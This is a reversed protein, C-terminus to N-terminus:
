QMAPTSVAIQEEVSRNNRALAAKVLGLFLPHPNNPRSGFEPHFQTAIFYPHQPMEIIEVLRGDPSTGSIEYDTELLLSRYANNFEYRHRHREYIVEDKYLSYALTDPKLRCPYTGLRMTGGRDIVDQQEPLINIVPNDTGPDFEASNADKLGAVNRAWEIACCQMGLCLGLFPLNTTRAYEIAAVKGDVGRVGFGGPVILGGVDQLYKAAGHAEIDEASVWRLNVECNASIAGHGM